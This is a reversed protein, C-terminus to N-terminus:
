TLGSGLHEYFVEWMEARIVQVHTELGVKSVIMGSSKQM